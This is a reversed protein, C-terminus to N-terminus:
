AVLSLESKGGFLRLNNEFEVASNEAHVCLCVPIQMSHFIQGSPTHPSAYSSNGSHHIDADKESLAIWHMLNAAYASKIEPCAM